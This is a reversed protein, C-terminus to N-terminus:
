IQSSSKSDHIREHRQKEKWEASRFWNIRHLDPNDKFMREIAWRPAMYGHVRAIFSLLHYDEEYDLTLRLPWPSSEDPYTQETSNEPAERNYSTGMLGSGSQSAVSPHIRSFRGVQFLQMSGIVAERSFFPDDGDLQHFIPTGFHLSAEICLTEVNTRYGGFIDLCSTLDGLASEDGKPCVIHPKFGFHECRRVIWEVLPIGAFPLLAKNRLRESGLRFAIFVPIM